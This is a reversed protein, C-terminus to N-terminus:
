TARLQPPWDTTIVHRRQPVIHSTVWSKWVSLAASQFVVQTDITVIRGGHSKVKFLIDTTGFKTFYRVFEEIRHQGPGPSGPREAAMVRTTQRTFPKTPLQSSRHNGFM